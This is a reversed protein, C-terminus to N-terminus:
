NCQYDFRITGLFLGMGQQLDGDCTVQLIYQDKSIVYGSFNTIWTDLTNGYNADYITTIIKKVALTSRPGFSFGQLFRYSEFADGYFYIWPKTIIDTQMLKTIGDGAFLQTTILNNGDYLYKSIYDPVTSYNYYTSKQVLKGNLDYKYEYLIDDALLDNTTDRFFYQNINKTKPDQVMWEANGMVITDGHYQFSAKYDVTNTISDFYNLGMIKNGNDRQFELRNFSTKGSIQRITSIQCTASDKTTLFQVEEGTLPDTQVFKKSCSQLLLFLILIYFSGKM